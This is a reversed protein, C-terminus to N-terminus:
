SGGALRLIPAPDYTEPAPLLPPRVTGMPLGHRAQALRKLVAPAAYEKTRARIQQLRAALPVGADADRRQALAYVGRISAPM